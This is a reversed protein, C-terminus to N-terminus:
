NDPISCFDLRIDHIQANPIFKPIETGSAENNLVKALECVFKGVNFLPLSDSDIIFHVKISPFSLYTPRIRAVKQANVSMQNMNRFKIHGQDSIATNVSELSFAPTCFSFKRLTRRFEASPSRYKWFVASWPSKQSRSGDRCTAPLLCCRRIGSNGERLM